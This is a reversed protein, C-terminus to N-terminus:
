ADQAGEESPIPPYAKAVADMIDKFFGDRFGYMNALGIAESEDCWIAIKGKPNGIHVADRDITM